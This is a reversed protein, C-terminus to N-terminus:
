FGVSQAPWVQMGMSEVGAEPVRLTQVERMTEVDVVVVAAGGIRASLAYLWGGDAAVVDTNGANGNKLEVITGVKGSYNIEVIRNVAADTVFVTRTDSSYASWCTAVQGTINTITTSITSMPGQQFRITAAGVSPDAVVITDSRIPSIGFLAGAGMPATATERELDCNGRACPFSRMAGTRVGKITVVLRQDGEEGVFLIDSVTSPPGRPPTTQALGLGKVGVNKLVGDASVEFCAVSNARGANAVCALRLSRSYAVSVPFEGYTSVPAGLLTLHTPNSPDIQFLSLTNSGANVAFLYNDVVRIAGQSFLADPGATRNTAAVVGRSGHGGTLVAPGPAHLTGNSSVPIPIIANNPSTNTMFYVAKPTHRHKHHPAAFTRSGMSALFLLATTLTNQFHM